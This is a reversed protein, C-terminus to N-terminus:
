LLGQLSQLFALREEPESNEASAPACLGHTRLRPLMLAPLHLLRGVNTPAPPPGASM